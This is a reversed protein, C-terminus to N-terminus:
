LSKKQANRLATTVFVSRHQSIPGYKKLAAIHKATGHGTNTKFGYAPSLKHLQRMLKDREVKAVIGAAITPAIKADADVVSRVRETKDKIRGIRLNGDLIYEGAETKRIIRRFIEKNASGIGRNNIQRVSITEVHIEAGAKLLATYIKRQQRPKLKKSDRLPIGALETLRKKPCKLVVGAAVLPGALAGRGCEDIGCVRKM